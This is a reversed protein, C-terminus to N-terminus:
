RKRLEMHILSVGFFSTIIGLVFDSSIPTYLLPAGMVLFLIGAALKVKNIDKDKGDKKKIELAGDSKKVTEKAEEARDEDVELVVTGTYGCEGCSYTPNAGIFGLWNNRDRGIRTSACRPCIRVSRTMTFDKRAFYKVKLASNELYLFIKSYRQKSATFIFRPLLSNMFPPMVHAPM